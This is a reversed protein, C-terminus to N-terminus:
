VNYAGLTNKFIKYQNERTYQNCRTVNLSRKEKLFKEFDDVTGILRGANTEQLLTVIDSDKHCSVVIPKTGHLYEFIKGTLNENGEKRSDELVLYIDCSKKEIKLKEQSLYGLWTVNISGISEQNLFDFPNDRSAFKISLVCNQHEQVYANFVELIKSPNRYAGLTGMYLINISQSNSISLNVEEKEIKNQLGNYVTIAEKHYFRSAKKNGTPSVVLIRDVDKMIFKDLQNDLFNLIPLRKKQRQISILDRLDVIHPIRYRKKAYNGLLVSAIPGFSSVVVDYAEKQNDDIWMKSEKYWSSVISPDISRITLSPHRLIDLYSIKKNQPKFSSFIIENGIYHIKKDERYRTHWNATLVTIDIDTDEKSLAYFEGWRKAGIADAPPFWYSILLIKM